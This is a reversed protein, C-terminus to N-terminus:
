QMILEFEGILKVEDSVVIGGSETVANWVLGYAKRSITSTLSFGARTKGYQDVIIGGFEVSFTIPLTVDRITLKGDLNGHDKSKQYNTTTFSILPFKDSNFFDASKLHEDRDVNHTDISKVKANFQITTAKNFSENETEVMLDFDQFRGTLTAIMLHKVKFMIQSHLPDVLWKLTEM